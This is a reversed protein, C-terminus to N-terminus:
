FDVGYHNGADSVCRKEVTDFFKYTLISCEIQSPQTEISEFDLYISYSTLEKFYNGM